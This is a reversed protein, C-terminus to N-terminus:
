MGSTFALTKIQYYIVIEYHDHSSYSELYLVITSVPTKKFM